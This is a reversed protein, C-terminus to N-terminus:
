STYCKALAELIDDDLYIKDYDRVSLTTIEEGSWLDKESEEYTEREM